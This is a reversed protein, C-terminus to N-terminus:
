SMMSKESPTAMKWITNLSNQIIITTELHIYINKIYIYIYIYVKKKLNQGTHGAYTKRCDPCKLQYIGSCHFKNENETQLNQNYFTKSQTKLKTLLAHHQQQPQQQRRQQQPQQRRRQQQKAICLNTETYTYYDLKNRKCLCYFYGM